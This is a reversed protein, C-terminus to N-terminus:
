RHTHQNGIVAGFLRRSDGKSPHYVGAVEWSISTPTLGSGLVSDIFQLHNRTAKILPIRKLDEQSIYNHINM